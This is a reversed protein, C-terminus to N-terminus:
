GTAAQCASRLRQRAAEHDLETQLQSMEDGSLYLFAECSTGRRLAGDAYLDLASRIHEALQPYGKDLRYVRRFAGFTEKWDVGWSALGRVIDRAAELEREVSESERLAYAIELLQIAKEGEPSSVISRAWQVYADELLEVYRETVHVRDVERLAKLHEVAGTWDGVAHAAQAQSWLEHERQIPQGAGQGANAAAQQQEREDRLFRLQEVNRLEAESLVGLAELHEGISLAGYLDGESLRAELHGRLETLAAENRSAAQAQGQLYGAAAIASLGATALILLGALFLRM